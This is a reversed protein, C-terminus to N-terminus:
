KGLTADTAANANHVLFYNAVPGIIALVVGFAPYVHALGSLPGAPDYLGSGVLVGGIATLTHLLGSSVQSVKEDGTPWPRSPSLSDIAVTELVRTMEDPKVQSITNAVSAATHPGDDGLAEGLQHIIDMPKREPTPVPPPLRALEADLAACTLDGVQGDANLGHLTQFKRIASHTHRGDSGDVVLGAGMVKNLSNQVWKIGTLSIDDAPIKDKPFYKIVEDTAGNIKFGVALGASLGPDLGLLVKALAWCGPQTDWAKPNWVGDAVYKGGTYVTSGAWLYGPRKGRYRPGFGNWAECRYLFWPLSWGEPGMAGVHDYAIADVAGDAWTAFPGRGKPVHSTIHHLPDGNGLYTDFNGDSERENVVMLWLMPVGTRTAVPKYFTDKAELIRRALGTLKEETAPSTIRATAALALYEPRLASFTTPTSMWIV